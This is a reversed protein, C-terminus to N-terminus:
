DVDLILRLSGYNLRPGLCSCYGKLHEKYFCSKQLGLWLPKFYVCAPFRVLPSGLPDFGFQIKRKRILASETSSCEFRDCMM